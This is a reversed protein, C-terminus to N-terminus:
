GKKRGKSIKRIENLGIEVAKNILAMEDEYRRSLSYSRSKGDGEYTLM